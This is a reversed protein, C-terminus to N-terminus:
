KVYCGAITMVVKNEPELYINSDGIVQKVVQEVKEYNSDEYDFYENTDFLKLTNEEIRFDFDYDYDKFKENLARIVQFM